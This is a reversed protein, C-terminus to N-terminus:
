TKERLGGRSRVLDSFTLPVNAPISRKAVCGVVRRLYKPPIGTGPRKIDLMAAKLIQGKPIGCVTVISRRFLRRGRLECRVPGLEGNGLASEVHRIATVTARLMRPDASFRHDPGPLSHSLTFHREYVKAGLSVAIMAAELGESHDSFGVPVDPYVRQFTKLKNLNLECANAPYASVCHLLILPVHRRRVMRVADEIERANAMGTSLLMPLKKGAYYELLPINILDDSGVKIAPVGIRLLLDLDPEDSPTSMFIIKTRDCHEKLSRWQNEAFECRKFMDFMPESVRRGRSIYAYRVRRNSIFREASFTQFKIADAGCVKATEIMKKALRLSGNHNIGAEAIVLCPDHPSVRNNGIKIRFYKKM